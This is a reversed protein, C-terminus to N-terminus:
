SAGLGAPRAKRLERAKEEAITDNIFTGAGSECGALYKIKDASRHPPYFEVHFHHSRHARGDTPSSHMLMIYPMSFGFLNDYKLLVRKLIVALDSREGPTMDALSGRHRRSSIHVEYPYRAFFPIYAAFSRNLAVQREGGRVEAKVMDCLMCRRHRRMYREEAKLEREVRPPIFPFAYIQGHPHSLTVGIVAGKNEFIYVYKIFPRAALEIFRDRWVEVLRKVQVLPMGALTSNHKDSYLVVECIGKGPATRYLDGPKGTIRGEERRAFSPFKNEFAVMEYPANLGEAGGPCFPCSPTSDGKGGLAIPRVQRQANVAVWEELLPHWRMVPM